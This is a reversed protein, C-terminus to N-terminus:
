NPFNEGADHYPAKYGCYPATISSTYPVYYFVAQDWYTNWFNPSLDSPDTSGDMVTGFGPIPQTAYDYTGRAERFKKYDAKTIKEVKNNARAGYMVQRLKDGALLQRRTDRFVWMTACDESDDSDGCNLEFDVQDYSGILYDCFWYTPFNELDSDFDDTFDCKVADYIPLVSGTFTCCNREYNSIFEQRLIVKNNYVSRISSGVTTPAMRILDWPQTRKITPTTDYYDDVFEDWSSETPVYSDSLYLTEEMKGVEHDYYVQFKFFYIVNPRCSKLLDEDDDDFERGLVLGNVWEGCSEDGLNSRESWFDINGDAWWLYKEENASELNWWDRRLNWNGDPLCNSDCFPGEGMRWGFYEAQDVPQQSVVVAVLVALLLTKIM